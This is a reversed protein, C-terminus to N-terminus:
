SRTPERKFVQLLYILSPFLVLGGAVLAWLWAMTLRTGKARRHALDLYIHDGTRQWRREAVVMLVPMAVGVMAFLIHFGLSMAMQSRAALLDPM